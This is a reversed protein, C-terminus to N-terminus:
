NREEDDYHWHRRHRYPYPYYGGYAWGHYAPQDYVPRGSTNFCYGDSRCITRASAPITTFLAVGSIATATLLTRTLTM